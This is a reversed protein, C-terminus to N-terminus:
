IEVWGHKKSSALEAEILILQRLGDTFQPYDPPSDPNAVSAYFRRFLQKFTSDYGEAHGGPLDAYPRADAKMLSPDKILIQNGTNRNGIWLQNPTEGDWAVSSKTGYIELSLRNKRGGSVQSATFSGRTREGMRFIVAGFDETDIAVETYESPALLKGSFTEVPGKPRKRKKYFTQLDACLATIRQGTVFEAMDCWHSGIDAMTRSAGNEKSELRWNWDTDLLLWDQSYTGQVILIEGLEGDKCMARMQQVLPYFRLNHCTCNRLNQTTALEVMKKAEEVSMALPKECVVHKGALLAERAVPFHMANPTCIHVASLAPDELLPRYDLVVTEIGFDSALKKARSLDTTGLASVQVIAGLRSLAEVHQRGVFGTGFVAVKLPKNM